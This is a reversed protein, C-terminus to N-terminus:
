RKVSLQVAGVEHTGQARAAGAQAPWEFPVRVIERGGVERAMEVVLSYTGPKMQSLPAKTGAFTMKHTGPARTASSIGDVPMTLERGSKRWWTRLDKLWTAGKEGKATDQLQYWVTLNAVFSQDPREIWVAVYPRHYEAVQMRPIELSVELDAAGAAATFMVTALAASLILKM